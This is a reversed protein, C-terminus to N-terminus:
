TGLGAVHRGLFLVCVITQGLDFNFNVVQPAQNGTGRFNHAGTGSNSLWVANPPMGDTKGRNATNERHTRSNSGGIKRPNYGESDKAPHRVNLSDM